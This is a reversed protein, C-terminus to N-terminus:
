AAILEAPNFDADVVQTSSSFTMRRYVERCRDVDGGCYTSVDAVRGALVFDYVKSGDIEDGIESGKTPIGFIRCLKDLSVMKGIGAWQFMTDYVHQDWPRANFPIIPPPRIGLLISRHLIFRLDFNIINHGVFVPHMDRTPDYHARIVEFLDTLIKPEAAAWDEGYLNIPADDGIAISAAVIQGFAGDFSTKRYAKDIGADIESRAAALYKAITAEDKYNSPAKVLAKAEEAEARLADIVSPHQGPITEIDLFFPKKSM